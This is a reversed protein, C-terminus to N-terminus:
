PVERMLLIRSGIAYSADQYGNVTSLVSEDVTVSVVQWGEAGLRNLIGVRTLGNEPTVEIEEPDTDPKRLFYIRKVSEKPRNAQPGRWTVVKQYYDTSQQYIM